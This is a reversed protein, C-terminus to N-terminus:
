SVYFLDQSIFPMLEEKLAEKTVLDIRMGTANELLFLVDMYADFNKKGPLFEVLVDIDSKSTMEDRAVSGFIGIREVGHAHLAPLLARIKKLIRERMAMYLLIM